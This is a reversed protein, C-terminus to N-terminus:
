GHVCLICTLGEVPREHDVEELFGEWSDRAGVREAISFQRSQGFEM